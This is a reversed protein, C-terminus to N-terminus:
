LLVLIYMTNFMRFMNTTMTSESSVRPVLALRCAPSRLRLELYQAPAPRPYNTCSNYAARFHAIM